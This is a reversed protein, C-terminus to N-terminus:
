VWNMVKNESKLYLIVYIIFIKYFFGFFDNQNNKKISKPKKQHTKTLNGVKNQMILLIIFDM